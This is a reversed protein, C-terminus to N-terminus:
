SDGGEKRMLRAVGDEEAFKKRSIQKKATDLTQARELEDTSMPESSENNNDENAMENALKAEFEDDSIKGLATM